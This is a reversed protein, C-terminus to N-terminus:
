SELEKRVIFKIDIGLIPYTNFIVYNYRRSDKIAPNTHSLTTVEQAIGIRRRGFFIRWNKLQEESCHMGLHSARHPTVDRLDMWNSGETYQLLELECGEPILDYEFALNASNTAVVDSDFVKGTAIVHDKAWDGAGMAKLLRMAAVPDPPCLALQEVQFELKM